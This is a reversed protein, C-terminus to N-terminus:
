GTQRRHFLCRCSFRGLWYCRVRVIANKIPKDTTTTLLGQTPSYQHKKYRFRGKFYIYSWRIQTSDANAIIGTNTNDTNRFFKTGPGGKEVLSRGRYKNILKKLWQEKI